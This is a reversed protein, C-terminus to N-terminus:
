CRYTIPICTPSWEGVGRFVAFCLRLFAAVRERTLPRWAEEGKMCVCRTANWQRERQDVRRRLYREGGVNMESAVPLGLAKENGVNKAGGVSM